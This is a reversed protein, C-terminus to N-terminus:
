CVDAASPSADNIIDYKGSGFIDYYIQLVDTANQFKVVVANPVDTQCIVGSVYTNKYKALVRSDCWDNLNIFEQQENTSSGSGAHTVMPSAPKSLKLNQSTYLSSPNSIVGTHTSSIYVKKNSLITQHDNHQSSQPHSSQQQQSQTQQQQVVPDPPPLGQFRLPKQEHMDDIYPSDATPPPPQLATCHTVIMQSTPITYIMESGNKIVNTSTCEMEELDSPNFKRKKPHQRPPQSQQVNSNSNSVTITDSSAQVTQAVLHQHNIQGSQQQQTIYEHNPPLKSNSAVTYIQHSSIVSAPIQFIQAIM